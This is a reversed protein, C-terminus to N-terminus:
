AETEAEEDEEEDEDEFMTNFAASVIEYEEDSVIETLELTEDEHEIFGYLLASRFLM